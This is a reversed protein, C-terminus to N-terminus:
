ENKGAESFYAEVKKYSEDVNKKFEERGKKYNAVWENLLKKGEEPLWAAQELFTNVAKETQEQILVMANFTNDFTAKNFEIMQKAMKLPEMM